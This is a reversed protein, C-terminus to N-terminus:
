MQQDCVPLDCKSTYKEISYVTVFLGMNVRSVPLLTALYYWIASKSLILAFNTGANLYKSYIEQSQITFCHWQCFVKVSELSNPRGLHM